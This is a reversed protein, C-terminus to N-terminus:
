NVLRLQEEQLNSERQKERLRLAELEIQTEHLKMETTLQCEKTEQLEKLQEQLAMNEEELEDIKDLHQQHTNDLQSTNSSKTLIAEVLEKM